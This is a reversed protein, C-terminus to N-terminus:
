FDVCFPAAHILQFKSGNDQYKQALYTKWKENQKTLFDIKWNPVDDVGKIEYMVCKHKDQLWNGYRWTERLRVHSVQSTNYQETDSIMTIICNSKWLMSHMHECFKCGKGEDKKKFM